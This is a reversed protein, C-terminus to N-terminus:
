AYPNMVSIPSNAEAQPWRAAIWTVQLTAPPFTQLARTPSISPRFRRPNRLARSDQAPLSLVPALRAHPKAFVIRVLSHPQTQLDVTEGPRTSRRHRRHRKQLQEFDNVDGGAMMQAPDTAHNCFFCSFPERAAFEEGMFLMIPSVAALLLVAYAARWSKGAQGTQTLREGYPRRASTHTRSCSTSSPKRLLRIWRRVDM